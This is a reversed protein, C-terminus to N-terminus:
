TCLWGEHIPSSQSALRPVRKLVEIAIFDPFAASEQATGRCLTNLMAVMEETALIDLLDFDFGGEIVLDTSAANASIELIIASDRRRASWDTFVIRM